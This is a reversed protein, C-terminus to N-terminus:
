RYTEELDAPGMLYELDAAEMLYELEVTEMLSVFCCIIM